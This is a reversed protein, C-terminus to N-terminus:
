PGTNFRIAAGLRKVSLSINEHQGTANERVIVRGKHRRTEVGYLIQARHMHMM